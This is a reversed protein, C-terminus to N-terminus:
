ATMIVYTCGRASTIVRFPSPDGLTTEVTVDRGALNQIALTEGGTPVSAPDLRIVLTSGELVASWRLARIHAVSRAAEHYSLWGLRYKTINRIGQAFALATRRGLDCGLNYVNPATFHFHGVILGATQVGRVVGENFDPGARIIEVGSALEWCSPVSGQFTAAASSDALLLGAEAVYDLMGPTSVWGPARFVPEVSPLANLFARHMMGMVGRAQLDTYQAFENASRQQYNFHWYGHMAVRLNPYEHLVAKVTEVWAPQRSLLYRDDEAIATRTVPNQRMNAIAMLSVKAEPYTAALQDLLFGRLIGNATLDGGFDLGDGPVTVPCFDDVDIIAAADLGNPWPHASVVLDGLTAAAPADCVAALDHNTIPPTPDPDRPGLFVETDLCADLVGAGACMSLLRLFERRKITM